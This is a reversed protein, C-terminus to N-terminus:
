DFTLDAEWVVEGATGTEKIEQLVYSGSPLSEQAMVDEPEVPDDFTTVRPNPDPHRRELVYELVEYEELEGRETQFWSRITDLILVM